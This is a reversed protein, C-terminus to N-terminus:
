KGDTYGLQVFLIVMAARRRSFNGAREEQEEGHLDDLSPAIPEPLSGLEVHSLM